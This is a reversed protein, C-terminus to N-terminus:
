SACPPVGPEVNAAHFDAALVGLYLADVRQGRLLFEGRHRGEERFGVARYARLARENDAHVAGLIGTIFKDEPNTATM